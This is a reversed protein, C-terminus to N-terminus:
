PTVRLDGFPEAHCRLRSQIDRAIASESRDNPLWHLTAAVRGSKPKADMTM